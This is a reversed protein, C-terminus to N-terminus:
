GLDKNIIGIAIIKTSLFVMYKMEEKETKLLFCYENGSDHPVNCLCGHTVKVIM